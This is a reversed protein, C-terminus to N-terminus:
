SDHQSEGVLWLPADEETRTEHAERWAGDHCKMLARGDPLQVLETPGHSARVMAVVLSTATPAHIVVTGDTPSKAVEAVKMLVNADRSDSADLREAVDLDLPGDAALAERRRNRDEVNRRMVVEAVREPPTDLESCVRAVTAAIESVPVMTRHEGHRYRGHEAGRLSKGGHFRCPGGDIKFNTCPELNRQKCGKGCHVKPDFVRKLGQQVAEVVHADSM